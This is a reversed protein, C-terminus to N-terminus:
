TASKANQIVSVEDLLGRLESDLSDSVGHWPALDCIRGRISELEADKLPISCFDDWDCDGETGAIFRELYGAVYEPGASMKNLGFLNLLLIVPAALLILPGIVLMMPVLLLAHGVKGVANRM